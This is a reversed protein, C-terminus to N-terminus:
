AFKHLYLDNGKEAVEARFELTKGTSVRSSLQSEFGSFKEDKIKDMRCILRHELGNETVHCVKINKGNIQTLADTAVLKITKM